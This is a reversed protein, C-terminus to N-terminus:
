GGSFASFFAVEQGPRVWAEDDLVLQQAVAARVGPEALALAGGEVLSALIARVVSLPCGCAPIPIDRVRGFRDAIRGFFLVHLMAATPGATPNLRPPDILPADHLM